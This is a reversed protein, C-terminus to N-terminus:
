RAKLFEHPVPEGVFELLEVYEAPTNCGRFSRLDPDVARLEDEHVDVVGPLNAPVIARREGQEVLSSVEERLESSYVACLPQRRGEFCAVAGRHGSVREFLLQIVGPQLLPTDCGTVFVFAGPGSVGLARALAVLPGEGPDNVRVAGDPIPLENPGASGTAVMVQECVSSCVRYIRALLTETGFPLNAKNQGM